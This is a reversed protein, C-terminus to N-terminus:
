SFQRSNVTIVTVCGIISMAVVVITGDERRPRHEGRGAADLFVRLVCVTTPNRKLDLALYAMLLSFCVFLCVFLFWRPGRIPPARSVNDISARRARRRAPLGFTYGYFRRARLM